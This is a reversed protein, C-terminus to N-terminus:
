SRFLYYATLAALERVTFFGQRALRRTERCPSTACRLGLRSATLKIRALHYAHSVAV